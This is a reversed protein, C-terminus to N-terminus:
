VYKGFNEGDELTDPLKCNMTEPLLLCLSAGVLPGVGFIVPPLWPQIKGQLDNICDLTINRYQM